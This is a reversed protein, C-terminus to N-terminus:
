GALGVVALRAKRGALYFVSAHSENVLGESDRSHGGNFTSKSKSNGFVFFLFPFDAARSRTTAGRLATADHRGRADNGRARNGDSKGKREGRRTLRKQLRELQVAVKLLLPLGSSV